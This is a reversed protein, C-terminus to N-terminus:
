TQQMINMTLIRASSKTPAMLRWLTTALIGTQEQCVPEIGTTMTHERNELAPDIVRVLEEMSEKVEMTIGQGVEWGSIAMTVSLSRGSEKSGTFSGTLSSSSKGLSPHTASLGRRQEQPVSIRLRKNERAVANIGM